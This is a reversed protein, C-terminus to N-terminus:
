GAVCPHRIAECGTGEEAEDVDAAELACEGNGEVDVRRGPLILWFNGEVLLGRHGTGPLEDHCNDDHDKGQQQEPPKSVATATRVVLLDGKCSSRLLWLM